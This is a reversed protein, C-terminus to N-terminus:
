IQSGCTLLSVKVDKWIEYHSEGGGATINVIRLRIQPVSPFSSRTPEPAASCVQKPNQEQCGQANYSRQHSYQWGQMPLRKLNSASNHINLRCLPRSPSWIWLHAHPGRAVHLRVAVVSSPNVERSAKRELSPALILWEGPLDHQEMILKCTNRVEQVEELKWTRQMLNILSVKFDMKVSSQHPSKCM